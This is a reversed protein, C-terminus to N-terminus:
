QWMTSDTSRRSLTRKHFESHNFGKNARIKSKNTRTCSINFTTKTAPCPRPLAIRPHYPSAASVSHLPTSLIAKQRIQVCEDPPSHRIEPWSPYRLRMPVASGLVTPSYIHSNGSTMHKRGGWMIRILNHQFDINASLLPTSYM